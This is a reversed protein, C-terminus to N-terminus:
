ADKTGKKVLKEFNKYAEQAEVSQPKLNYQLAYNINKQELLQEALGKM